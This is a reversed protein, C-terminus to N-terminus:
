GRTWFAGACRRRNQNAGANLPLPRPLFWQKGTFDLRGAVWGLMFMDFPLMVVSALVGFMAFKWYALLQEHLAVWCETSPPGEATCHYDRELAARDGSSLRGWLDSWHVLVHEQLRVDVDQRNFMVYAAQWLMIMLALTPLVVYHRQITPLCGRDHKREREIRCPPISAVIGCVGSGLMLMVDLVSIVVWGGGGPAGAKTASAAVTALAIGVALVGGSIGRLMWEDWQSCDPQRCEACGGGTDGRGRRAGNGARAPM